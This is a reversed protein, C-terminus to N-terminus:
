RRLGDQLDDAYTYVCGYRIEPFQAHMHAAERMCAEYTAYRWGPAPTGISHGQVSVLIFILMPTHM